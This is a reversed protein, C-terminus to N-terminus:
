SSSEVCLAEAPSVDLLRAAICATLWAEDSLSSPRCLSSLAALSVSFSRRMARSM